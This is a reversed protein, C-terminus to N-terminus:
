DNRSRRNQPSGNVIPHELFGNRDEKMGISSLTYVRTTSGLSFCASLAAFRRWLFQWELRTSTYSKMTDFLLEAVSCQRAMLVHWCM